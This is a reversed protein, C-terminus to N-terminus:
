QIAVEIRVGPYTPNIVYYVGDIDDVYVAESYEWGIPWPDVFAFGFGGFYFGPFDGFFVPEGINFFHDRGFRERFTGEDIRRENREAHRGDGREGGRGDEGRGRGEGRNNNTNSHSKVHSKNQGGKSGGHKTNHQQAFAPAAGIMLLVAVMTIWKHM